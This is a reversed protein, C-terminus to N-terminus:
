GLVYIPWRHDKRSIILWQLGYGAAFGAVASPLVNLPADLGRRAAWADTAGAILAPWVGFIYAFVFLAPDIRLPNLGLVAWTTLCGIPPGILAFILLRM